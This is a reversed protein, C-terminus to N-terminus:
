ANFISTRLATSAALLEPPIVVPQAALCLVSPGPPVTRIPPRLSTLEAM